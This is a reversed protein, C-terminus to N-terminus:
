HQWKFYFYKQQIIYTLDVPICRGLLYQYKIM